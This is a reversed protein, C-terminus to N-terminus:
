QKQPLDLYYRYLPTTKLKMKPTYTCFGLRNAVLFFFHILVTDQQNVYDDLEESNNLMSNIKFIDKRKLCCLGKTLKVGNEFDSIYNRFIEFDDVISYANSILSEPTEQILSREGELLSNLEKKLNKQSKIDRELLWAEFDKNWTESEPNFDIYREFKEIFDKPYNYTDRLNDYQDQSILGSHFLFSSFKKFKRM